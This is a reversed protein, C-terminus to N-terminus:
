RTVVHRTRDFLAIWVQGPALSAPQGGITYSTVDSAKARSWAGVYEQGDRFILAKGHGVTLTQPTNAGNIDHYVSRKVTAFQVVFTTAGLRGGEAAQDPSGDMSLQWVKQAPAWTADVRSFPYTVTVQKVPKGGAPPTDSFTYGMEPPTAVKGARKRLAAFTGIVDYPQHRSPSRVYGTHDQDFSVLKLDARQLNDALKNQSGSYFLGVPKGYQRLLDIDTIRGSRVPGVFKPYASSYIAALRTAGGEVQEVYVVDAKTLGAQPHANRTNDVKVAYVPGNPKGLRGSLRSPQPPPPPSSTTASPSSTSEAHTTKKADHSSCATLVLALGLVPVAVTRLPALKM